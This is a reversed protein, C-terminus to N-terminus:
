VVIDQQIRNSLLLANANFGILTISGTDDFVDCSFIEGQGQANVFTKRPYIFDVKAQIKWRYIFNLNNFLEILVSIPFGILLLAFNLSNEHVLRNRIQYLGALWM